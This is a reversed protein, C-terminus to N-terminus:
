KLQVLLKHRRHKNLFALLDEMFPEFPDVIGMLGHNWGDDPPREWRALFTSIAEGSPSFPEAAQLLEAEPAAMRANCKECSVEFVLTKFEGSKTRRAKEAKQAKLGAHVTKSDVGEGEGVRVQHGQHALLFERLVVLDYPRIGICDLGEYFYGFSPMPAGPGEATELPELVPAGLFGYDGVNPALVRCDVCDVGLAISM